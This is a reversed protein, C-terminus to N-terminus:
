KNLFKSKLGEHSLIDALRLNAVFTRKLIMMKNIRRIIAFAIVGWGILQQVTLLFKITTSQSTQKDFYKYVEAMQFRQVRILGNNNAYIYSEIRNFLEGAGIKLGEILGQPHPETLKPNDIIKQLNKLIFNVSKYFGDRMVEDESCTVNKPKLNVVLIDQKCVEKDMFTKATDYLDSSFYDYDNSDLSFRIAEVSEFASDIKLQIPNKDLFNPTFIVLNEQPIM